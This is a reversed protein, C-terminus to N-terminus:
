QQFCYLPLVSDCGTLFSYDTWSTVIASSRGVASAPM